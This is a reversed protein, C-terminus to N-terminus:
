NPRSGLRYSGGACGTVLWGGAFPEVAINDVGAAEVAPDAPGPVWVELRCSGSARRDVGRIEFAGTAPDSTVSRLRGPAARPYARSLIRRTSEPIGLDTGSPCAYRNLSPSIAGPEAGPSGIVHPDGCAQRWSWWAGGALHRDEERAYSAIEPADSAPDGFWGWEGSWITTGYTAAVAQALAFGEPPGLLPVGLAGDASLSGAYIHPAFVINRDDTFTPPPVTDATTASWTM